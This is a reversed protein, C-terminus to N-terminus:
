LACGQAECEGAVLPQPAPKAAACRLKYHLPKNMWLAVDQQLSPTLYSIVKDFISPSVTFPRHLQVRLLLNM